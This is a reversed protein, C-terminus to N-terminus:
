AQMRRRKLWCTVGLEAAKDPNTVAGAATLATVPVSDATPEPVERLLWGPNSAGFHHTFPMREMHTHRPEALLWKAKQKDTTSAGGDRIILEAMAATESLDQHGWIAMALQQSDCLVPIGRSLRLPASEFHGEELFDVITPKRGDDTGPLRETEEVLGMLREIHSITGAPDLWEAPTPGDWYEGAYWYWRPERRESDTPGDPHGAPWVAIRSGVKKTVVLGTAELQDVMRTISKTDREPVVEVLDIQRTGPRNHVAKVIAEFREHDAKHELAQALREEHVTTAGASNREHRARMQDDDEVGNHSHVTYGLPKYPRRADELGIHEIAIARDIVDFRGFISALYLCARHTASVHVGGRSSKMLAYRSTEEDLAQAAIDLANDFNGAGVARYFLNWRFRPLEQLARMKFRSLMDDRRAPVYM